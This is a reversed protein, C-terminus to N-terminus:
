EPGALRIIVFAATVGRVYGHLQSRFAAWRTSSFSFLRSSALMLM